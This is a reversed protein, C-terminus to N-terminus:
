REMNNGYIGATHDPTYTLGNPLSHYTGINIDSSVEEVYKEVVGSDLSQSLSYFTQDLADLSESVSEGDTVYTGGPTYDLDLNNGPPPTYSGGFVFDVDDGAPPTYPEAGLFIRDGIQTNIADVASTM